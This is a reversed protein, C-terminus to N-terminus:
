GLALSAFVGILLTLFMGSLSLAVLSFKFYNLATEQRIIDAVFLGFVLVYSILLVLVAGFMYGFLSM